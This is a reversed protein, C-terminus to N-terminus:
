LDIQSDRQPNYANDPETEIVDFGSSVANVPEKKEKKDKDSKDSKKNNKIFKGKKVNEQAGNVSPDMLLQNTLDDVLQQYKAPYFNETKFIDPLFDRM